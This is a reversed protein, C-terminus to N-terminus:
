YSSLCREKEHFRVLKSKKETLVFQLSGIKIMDSMMLIYVQFFINFHELFKYRKLNFIEM